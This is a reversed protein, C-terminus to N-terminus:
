RRQDLCGDALSREENRHTTENREANMGEKIGNSQEFRESLRNANMVEKIRIGNAIENGEEESKAKMGEQIGIRNAIKNGEEERKAEKEDTKMGFDEIGVAEKPPEDRKTEKMKPEIDSAMKLKLKRIIVM